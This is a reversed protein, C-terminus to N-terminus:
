HNREVIGNGSHRYSMRSKLIGVLTASHFATGNDSVEEM